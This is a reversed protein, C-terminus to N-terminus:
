SWDPNSGRIPPDGFQNTPGGNADVTLLTGSPAFLVQQGDPSWTPSDVSGGSTNALARANTGDADVVFLDSGITTTQQGGTDLKIRIFAIHKGDPSWAPTQNLTEPASVLLSTEGTRVDVLYIGDPEGGTASGGFAILRGDPSWSPWASEIEVLRRLGSGDAKMVYVRAGGADTKTVAIQQGDPSWRADWFSAEGTTLQDLRTGDRNVVMVHGPDIPSDSRIFILRRRDPSWDPQRDFAPGSTIRRRSGGAVAIRFLDSDAVFAIEEESTEPSKPAPAAPLQSPSSTLISATWVTSAALLIAAMGAGAVMIFRRARAKSAVDDPLHSTADIPDLNHRLSNRLRAEFDNM